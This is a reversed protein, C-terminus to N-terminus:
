LDRYRAQQRATWRVAIRYGTKTQREAQVVGAEHLWARRCGDEFGLRLERDTKEEEFAASVAELLRPLAVAAIMSGAGFAALALATARASLGHGAQVM